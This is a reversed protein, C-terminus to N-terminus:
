LGYNRTITLDDVVGGRPQPPAPEDTGGNGLDNTPPSYPGPLPRLTPLCGFGDVASRTRGPGTTFRGTSLNLIEEVPGTDISNFGTSIPTAARNKTNARNTTRAFLSVAEFSCGNAASNGDLSRRGGDWTRARLRMWLTSNQAKTRPAAPARAAAKRQSPKV